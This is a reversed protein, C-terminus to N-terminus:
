RVTVRALVIWAGDGHILWAGPREIVRPSSEGQQAKENNGNEKQRERPYAAGNERLLDCQRRELGRCLRLHSKALREFQLRIPVNADRCACRNAVRPRVEVDVQYVILALLDLGDINGDVIVGASIAV